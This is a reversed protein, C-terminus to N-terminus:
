NKPTDKKVGLAVGVGGILAGFGIAFDQPNFIAHQVYHATTLGFYQLVGVVAFVRIPCFTQNDPETFINHLFKKM